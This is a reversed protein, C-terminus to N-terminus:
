RRVRIEFHGVSAGTVERIRDRLNAELFRLQTAWSPDDVDVVLREGDLRVPQVHAAVSDGVIESWRGFVGGVARASTTGATAAGATDSRLSTVLGALSDSVLVPEDSWRSAV